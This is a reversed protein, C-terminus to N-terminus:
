IPIHVKLIPKGSLTQPLNLLARFKEESGALATEANERQKENEISDLAFSIDSAVEILLDIEEQDFFHTTSAYLTFVGVIEGYLKIPLAISSRYGRKLAEDKWIGMLPDTEVDDCVFHTGERFASGTPGRGYPTDETSIQNITTLYGDESGSFTFPVITKTEMDAVGIWAMKFKGFEIAIQCSEKFLQDRDHTRVITQNIQSILSYVRNIKIVRDEARKRETINISLIFIGEPVPQISLDHLEVSGDLFVFRNEM